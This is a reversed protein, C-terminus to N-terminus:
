DRCDSRYYVVVVVLMAMLVKLVGEPGGVGDRLGDTREQSLLCEWVSM